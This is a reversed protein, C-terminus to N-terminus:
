RSQTINLIQNKKIDEIISDPVIGSLDKKYLILERVYSSSIFLNKAATPLFFMEINEKLIRNIGFYHMEYEFDSGNRVGRIINNCSVMDCYETLLGDYSDVYVNKHNKLAKQAFAVRDELSFLTCKRHNILILLTVEDFIKCARELIDIHGVTIPDFTGPFICKIM